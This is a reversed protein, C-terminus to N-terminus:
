WLQLLSEIVDLEFLVVLGSGLVKLLCRNRKKHLFVFTLSIDRKALVRALSCALGPLHADHARSVFAINGTKSAPHGWWDTYLDVYLLAIGIGLSCISCLLDADSDVIHLGKRLPFVVVLALLSAAAARQRDVEHMFPLESTLSRPNAFQISRLSPQLVIRVQVYRSYARGSQFACIFHLQIALAVRCNERLLSSIAQELNFNELLVFSADSLLHAIWTQASLM